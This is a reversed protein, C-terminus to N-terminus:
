HGGRRALMYDAMAANRESAISCGPGGLYEEIALRASVVEGSAAHM